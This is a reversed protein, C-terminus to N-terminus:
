ISCLKQNISLKKDQVAKLVNEKSWLPRLNSWHFCEKQETPDCLNFSCCPRIHDIHWKGYNEWSMGPKFQSELHKRLFVISCGILNQTTDTKIWGNLVSRIRYSLRIKIRYGIDTKIRSKNRLNYQEMRKKPNRYYYDKSYKYNNKKDRNKQKSLIQKKNKLYYERQQKSIYNKNHLYYELHKKDIIAKNLQYYRQAKTKFTDKNKLYYIKSNNINCQRCSSYHGDKKSKDKKFENLSKEIGCKSCIKM